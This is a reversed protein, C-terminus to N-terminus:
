EYFGFTKAIWEIVPKNSKDLNCEPCANALNERSNNGRPSGDAPNRPLIHDGQSNPTQKGCYSCASGMEEREALRNKPSIRNGAGAGGSSGTRIRGASDVFSEGGPMVKATNREAVIITTSEVARTEALIVSSEGLTAMALAVEGMAIVEHGAYSWYDGRDWASSAAEAHLWGPTFSKAVSTVSNVVFNRDNSAPVASSLYGGAWNLFDNLWEHRGPDKGNVPDGGAYAYRNTGVGPQTVEWWDPQIFMGLKPDYYRANLYQLGAEGDLREGIFGKTEPASAGSYQFDDEEGFPKYFKREVRLNSAGAPLTGTSKSVARVSGLHDFHLYNVVVSSGSSNTKQVNPHPYTIIQSDPM